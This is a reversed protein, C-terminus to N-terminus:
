PTGRLSNSINAVIPRTTDVLVPEDPHVSLPYGFWINGFRILFTLGLILLLTYGLLRKSKLAAEIPVSARPASPLDRTEPSMVGSELEPPPGADM